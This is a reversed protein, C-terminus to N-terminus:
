SISETVGENGYETWFDNSGTVAVLHRKGETTVKIKTDSFLSETKWCHKTKSFLSRNVKMLMIDMVLVKRLSENTKCNATNTSLTEM